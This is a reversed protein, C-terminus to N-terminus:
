RLGHAAEKLVAAVYGQAATLRDEAESTPIHLLVMVIATKARGQSERLAEIAEQRSCGTATMVIRRAREELKQNSSKVDVMLNGYVKGLRIMAGTSLMNAIMKQATGAKMRTSGTVVEPGVVACLDIDACRGIASHPSCDIAITAAGVSAAYTLGGVVYPTRGSASLGVVVDDATLNKDILDQRGLEPSDEAGEKARFIAEYGGAILGQIREPDTSYTPPCEVADLIGLRGSTGSGMYFLRGGRRLKDAITDVAQAIAPIIAGVADAVEHFFLYALGPNGAVALIDDGLDILQVGIDYRGADELFLLVAHVDGIGTENGSRRSETGATRM